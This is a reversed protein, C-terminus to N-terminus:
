PILDLGDKLMINLVEPTAGKRVYKQAGLEICSDAVDMDSTATLMVVVANPDDALIEKLTDIGNKIPMQIDLFTIDPKHKHYALIAEEGNAAEAIVKAGLSSLLAKLLHRIGEEDDVLLVRCLKDSNM